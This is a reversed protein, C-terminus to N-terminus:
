RPSAREGRVLADPAATLLAALRAAVGQPDDAIRRATLRVVEFGALKLDEDRRRDREFAARTRHHEFGDLEVVLRRSAWHMDVEYGAVLSNAVPAPLGAEEVLRLFRRELESRTFPLPKYLALARRLRGAGPHRGCRALLSEVAVLDFLELREAQELARDVRGPAAAAALDLLTRSASTLPIADLLSRDDETLTRCRHLRIGPHRGVGHPLTVDKQASTAPALGWAHAASGHSLLAHPGCALVAAMCRGQWTLRRHGVAFAGRHLRHLRGALVAKRVAGTSYGLERLQRHAVTGHQRTALEALAEHPRSQPGM